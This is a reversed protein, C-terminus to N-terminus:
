CGTDNRNRSANRLRSMCPPDKVDTLYLPGRECLIVCHLHLITHYLSYLSVNITGLQLVAVRETQELARAKDAAMKDMLFNDLALYLPLAANM